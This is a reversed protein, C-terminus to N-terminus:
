VGTCLRQFIQFEIMKRPMDGPPVTKISVMEKQSLNGCYVFISLKIPTTGGLPINKKANMKKRSSCNNLNRPYGHAMIIVRNIHLFTDQTINQFFYVGVNSKAQIHFSIFYHAKKGEYNSFTQFALTQICHPQALWQGSALSERSIWESMSCEVTSALVKDKVTQNNQYMTNGHQISAM